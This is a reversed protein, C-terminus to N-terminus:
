APKPGLSWNEFVFYFDYTLHHSKALGARIKLWREHYDPIVQHFQVQIHRFHSALNRALITELLEFEGGEINLKLLDIKRGGALKLAEDLGVFRVTEIEASAKTRFLSSAEGEVSIQEARSNAAIGYNLCVIRSSNAFRKSLQEFHRTMPEFCFVECQYRQALEAAFDGLYAGCDFVVSQPGLDYSFRLRKAHIGKDRGWRRGARRKRKRRWYDLFRFRWRSPLNFNSASDEM